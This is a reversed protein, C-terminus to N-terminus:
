IESLTMQIDQTLNEGNVVYYKEDATLTNVTMLNQIDSLSKIM